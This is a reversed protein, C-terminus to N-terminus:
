PEGGEGAHSVLCFCCVLDFVFLCVFLCVFRILVAVPYGGGFDKKTHVTFNYPILNEGEVLGSARCQLPFQAVSHSLISRSRWFSFLFKLFFFSVFSTFFALQQMSDVAEEEVVFTKGQDALRIVQRPNVPRTPSDSYYITKLQELSNLNNTQAFIIAAGVPSGV